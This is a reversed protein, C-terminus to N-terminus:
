QVLLIPQLSISSQVPASNIVFLVGLATLLQMCLILSKQSLTRVALWLKIARQLSNVRQTSKRGKELIAVPFIRAKSSQKSKKFIRPRKAKSPWKTKLTLFEICKCDELAHMDKISLRGFCLMKSQNKRIGRCEERTSFIHKHQGTDKQISRFDGLSKTSEDRM